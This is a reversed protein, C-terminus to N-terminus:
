ERGSVFMADIVAFPGYGTTMLSFVASECNM